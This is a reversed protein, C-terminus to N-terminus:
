NFTSAALSEAATSLWRMMLHGFLKGLLLDLVIEM